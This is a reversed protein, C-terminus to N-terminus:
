YTVQRTSRTPYPRPAQKKMNLLRDVSVDCNTMGVGKPETWIPPARTEKTMRTLINLYRSDEVHELYLLNNAEYSVIQNSVSFKSDYGTAATAVMSSIDLDFESEGLSILRPGM